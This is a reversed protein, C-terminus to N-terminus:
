ATRSSSYSDFGAANKYHTDNAQKAMKMNSKLADMQANLYKGQMYDSYMSSALGIGKTIGGIGGLSDLFSTGTDGNNLFDLSSDLRYDVDMFNNGDRSGGLNLNLSDMFNSGDSSGSALSFGLGSGDMFSGSGSASSPGYDSAINYNGLSYKRSM